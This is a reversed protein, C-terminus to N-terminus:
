IGAPAGAAALEMHLSLDPRKDLHCLVLKHAPMGRDLFFRLIRDADAGRETHVEIGLGSYAAAVTAGELANRPTNELSAECAVKILGPRVPAADARTEVLGCQIEDLFYRAAEDASAQWLWYDSPYYRRRHFGTSALICVRSELSLRALMRGDRGCGGPQCDVVASGGAQRYESLEDLAGGYDTLTPSGEAAGEVPEIWIHTHADAVSLQGAPVPGLVSVIWTREPLKTEM